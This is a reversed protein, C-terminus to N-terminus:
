RSVPIHDVLNSCKVYNNTSTRPKFIIATNVSLPSGHQYLGTRGELSQTRILFFIRILKEMEIRIWIRIYVMSWKNTWPSMQWSSFFTPGQLSRTSLYWKSGLIPVQWFNKKPPQSPVDQKIHVPRLINFEAYVFPRKITPELTLCAQSLEIHFDSVLNLLHQPTSGSGSLIRMSKPREPDPDLHAFIVRLFPFFYFLIFNMNQLVLHEWRLVSPLEQLYSPRGEHLVLSLYNCNFKRWSYFEVIKTM